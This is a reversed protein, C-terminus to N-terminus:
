EALSVRVTEKFKVAALSTCPLIKRLIYAEKYAERLNESSIYLKKYFKRTKCALSFTGGRYLLKFM